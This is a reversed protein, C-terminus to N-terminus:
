EVIVNRNDIQMDDENIADAVNLTEFVTDFSENWDDSLDLELSGDAQPFVFGMVYNQQLHSENQGSPELNKPNAFYFRHENFRLVINVSLINFEDNRPTHQLRTASMGSVLHTDLVKVKTQVYSIREEILANIEDRSFENLTAIIAKKPTDKQPVTYDQIDKYEYLRTSYEGNGVFEPLNDSIWQVVQPEIDVNNDIWSIIESHNILFNKLSNSNYLKNWDETNSKVGKSELVFWHDTENRKFYLDGKHNPHKDGEWKEKIRKVEYGLDELHRRLLLETIAGIVYGQANPSMKLAELFTEEDIRFKENIYNRLADM